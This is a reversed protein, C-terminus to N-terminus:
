ECAVLAPANEDDMRTTPPQSADHVIVALSHRTGSGSIVVRMPVGGPIALTEGKRLTLAGTPTELCQEGEIVYFAEVGSHHHVLSYMGPTFRASVAQMALRDARPLPLPGVHAEHIGGHHDASQEEITMLWWKGGAEFAVSAAGVAARAPGASAFSDIHWFLPEELGEPLTKSEIFSCGLQGQREPSNEVCLSMPQAALRGAPLALLFVSVLLCPNLTKM